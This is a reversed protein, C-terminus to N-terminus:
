NIVENAPKGVYYGQAYDVGYSRLFGLSREDGVFEAVTRKGFGRAVEALARVFVQDDPSDALNRIFSGDIKVYDVPLNKLYYFSSFGVGFDDLSFACGMARVDEIFARALAFDAVAATETIEFIVQSALEPHQSFFAQLWLLLDQDNMSLGSLNIAVKHHKGESQLAVWHTLVMEVVNHDLQRILGTKEAVEIFEIPPIMEGDDDLMRVLAEYHSIKNTHIDLIPQYQMVFKHDRLALKIRDEWLVFHELKEQLHEGESFVHWRSKGISKAQNMAIDANALLHRVDRNAVSVAVIGISGSVHHNGVLGPYNIEALAANIREAVQIAEATDCDYLFAGLEDGGLRAIIGKEGCIKTMLEAVMRLVIDGANHGSIDNIYKFGDLDLYLLVDHRSLNETNSLVEDVDRVFRQRNILGTLQDHEALYLSKEESRKRLTIDVGVSLIQVVEGDMRSHHWAIEREVGDHCIMTSEHYYHALQNLIIQQYIELLKKDDDPRKSLQMLLKGQLHDKSWGLLQEGYHNISHLHGDMDQTIIVVQATDLIRESFDNALSIRHLMAMIEAQHQSADQELCQLRNTLQLAAEVLKDVEDRLIPNKRLDIHRRASDFDRQGIFPIALVAKTVRRLPTNLLLYTTLMVLFSGLLGINLRGIAEKRILAVSESVDDFVVAVSLLQGKADKIPTFALEHSANDHNQRLWLKQAHQSPIETLRKLLPLNIQENSLGAVRMGLHPLAYTDNSRVNDLLFGLDAGTLRNFSLILDAMNASVVVAGVVQGSALIPAVSYQQCVYLCDIWSYSVEQRISEQVWTLEHASAPQSDNWLAIVRNHQDYIRMSELGYDVQLAVWAVDVRDKTRQWSHQEVQDVAQEDASAITAVLSSVQNIKISFEGLMAQLQALYRQNIQDRELEFRNIQNVYAWSILITMLTLLILGLLSM